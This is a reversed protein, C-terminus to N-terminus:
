KWNWAIQVKWLKVAYYMDFSLQMGFIEKFYWKQGFNYCSIIKGNEEEEKEEEERQVWTALEIVM